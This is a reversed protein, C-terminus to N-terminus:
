FTSISDLYEYHSRRYLTPFNHCLLAHSDHHVTPEFKTWCNRKLSQVVSDGRAASPIRRRVNWLVLIYHNELPVHRVAKLLCLDHFITVDTWISNLSFIIVYKSYSIKIHVHIWTFATVIHLSCWGAIIVLHKSFRRTPNSFLGRM